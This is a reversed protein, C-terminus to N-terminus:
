YAEFNPSMLNKPPALQQQFCNIRGKPNVWLRIPEPCAFQGVRQRFLSTGGGGTPDGDFSLGYLKGDPTRVIGAAVTSDIGQLNYRVRFPKGQNHAQLACETAEQPDGDIEVTGCDVGRWGVLRISRYDMADGFVRVVMTSMLSIGLFDALLLLVFLGAVGWVAVKSRVRM